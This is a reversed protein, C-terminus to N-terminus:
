GSNIFEICMYFMSVVFFFIWIVSVISCWSYCFNYCIIGIGYMYKNWYIYVLRNVFIWLIRFSVLKVKILKNLYFKVLIGNFKWVFDYLYFM